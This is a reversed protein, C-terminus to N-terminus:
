KKDQEFVLTLIKWGQDTKIFTFYDTGTESKSGRILEWRVVAHAIWGRVEISSHTPRESMPKPAMLHANTQGAIFEDLLYHHPNGSKDIFYVSAKPHFCNKYAQMDPKSWSSFYETILRGLLQEESLTKQEGLSSKSSLLLCALLSTLLVV